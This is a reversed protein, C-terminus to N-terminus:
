DPSAPRKPRRRKSAWFLVGVFAITAASALGVLLSETPFRESRQNGPLVVFPPGFPGTPLLERGASYPACPVCHIVTRYHGPPVDPVTFRLEGNGEADVTLHGLLILRGDDPSTIEGEDQRMFTIWELDEERGLFVRLPPYRAPLVTIAGNTRVTVAVGPAGSTRSFTFFLSASAGETWSVAAVALFSTVLVKRM